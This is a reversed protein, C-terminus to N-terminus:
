KKRGFLLKGALLILGAATGGILGGLLAIRRDVVTTVNGHVERSILLGTRINEARIETGIVAIAEIEKSSISNALALATVGSLSLSEAWAGGVMSNQLTAQESTVAGVISERVQLNVAKAAGVASIQLEVEEATLQQISTQNTRVLEAEVKEVSVKSLNVVQPLESAESRDTAM